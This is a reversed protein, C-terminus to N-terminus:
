DVVKDRVPPVILQDPTERFSSFLPHPLLWPLTIAVALSRYNTSDFCDTSRPNIQTNTQEDHCKGVLGAGPQTRREIM